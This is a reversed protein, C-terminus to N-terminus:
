AIVELINNILHTIDKDDIGLDDNYDIYFYRTVNYSRHLEAEFGCGTFRVHIWMNSTHNILECLIRVDTMTELAM